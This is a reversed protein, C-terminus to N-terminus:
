YKTVFTYLNPVLIPNASILSQRYDVCALKNKEVWMNDRPSLIDVNFNMNYTKNIYNIQNAWHKSKSDIQPFFFTKLHLRGREPPVIHPYFFIM